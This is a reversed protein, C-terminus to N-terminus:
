LGTKQPELCLARRIERIVHEPRNHVDDWTFHLTRWGSRALLTRRRLDNAWAGKDGHWRFSDAEIAVRQEPYAFDPTAVFGEDNFIEFQAIPRPLDSEWILHRLRREFTTQSRIDAEVTESIVTRLLKTGRVGQGGVRAMLQEIEGLSALGRHLADHVCRKFRATRLVDALDLLTRAPSTTRLGLHITIDREDLRKRHLIVDDGKLVRSVTLEVDRM